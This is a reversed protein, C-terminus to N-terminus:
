RMLKVIERQSDGFRVELLYVGPTLGGLDMEVRLSERREILCGSIDYLACVVPRDGHSLVRLRDGVREVTPAVSPKVNELGSEELVMRLGAYMDFKGCGWRPDTAYSPLPSSRRLIEQVDEVKLSPDAELWLAVGGAVLPSSMSTGSEPVWFYDKGMFHQKYVMPSFTGGNDLYVSSISSVVPAGPASVLPLKRGDVTTGYSSFYGIQEEEFRPFVCEKGDLDTVRDRSSYAGVSIVKRATAIDNISGAGEGNLLEPAKRSMHISQSAYGQVLTGAKGSLRLGLWTDSWGKPTEQKRPSFDMEVYVNYRDNLPNVEGFVMVVGSFLRDFEELVVSGPYEDAYERSAVIVEGVPLPLADSISFTSEDIILLEPSLPERNDSWFDVVGEVHFGTWEWAEIFATAASNDDETLRKSVVYHNEAENGASVCIISESGLKDIYENFLQTGDHPGTMSSLSLNVVAPKGQSRAYRVVDEIGALIEADYMSSTTGVIEADRAVGDYPSGPASGAMIGCVHTAHYKDVRDTTWRAVEAEGEAVQRLGNHGDYHSLKVTRHSGDVRRFNVHGPDFGIDSFGVVVGKGTYDRNLDCGSRIKDLGVSVSGKDMEPVSCESSDIDYIWGSDAVEALLDVPVSGIALDDREHWIVVGMAKLAEVSQDSTVRMVVPVYAGETDSMLTREPKHAMVAKLAPSVFKASLAM